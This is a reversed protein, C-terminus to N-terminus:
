HNEEGTLAKDSSLDSRYSALNTKSHTVRFLLVAERLHILEKEIMAKIHEPLAYAISHDHATTDVEDEPMLADEEAVLHPTEDEHNATHMATVIHAIKDIHHTVDQMTTGAQVALQSGHNIHTLTEEILTKIKKAAQASRQALSRVEAAVVAFGRGQEGARAAEVAANLALLNTQIAIGDIVSIMEAMKHSAADIMQMASIVNGSVDGAQQTMGTVSTTLAHAQEAFKRNINLRQLVTDTVDPAPLQHHASLTETQAPLTQFLQTLIGLHHAVQSVLGSLTHQMQSLGHLIHRTERHANVPIATTLNGTALTDTFTSIHRLMTRHYRRLTHIGYIGLILFIAPVVICIIQSITNNTQARQVLAQKNASFRAMLADIADLHQQQAPQVEDILVGIVGDKFNADLLNLIRSRQALYTARTQEVSALLAQIEKSSALTHLQALNDNIHQDAQNIRATDANNQQENDNLLLNHLSQSTLLIHRLVDNTLGIVLSEGQTFQQLQRQAVSLRSVAITSMVTMLLIGIGLLLWLRSTLTLGTM